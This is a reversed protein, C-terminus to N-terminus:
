SEATHSRVAIKICATHKAWRRNYPSSRSDDVLMTVRDGRIGKGRIYCKYHGGELTDGIHVIYAVVRYRAIGETGSWGYEDTYTIGSLPM